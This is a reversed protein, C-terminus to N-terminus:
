GVPPDDAEALLAVVEDHGLQHFDLYHSGVAFGGDVRRPCVVEDALEGLARVGSSSGIPVAVVIRGAGRDRLAQVGAIASSGTAIGDDVVVVDRGTVPLPPRDDGRYTRAYEALRDTEREITAAIRDRDLHLVDIRDEDLWCVGGESLAGIGYEPHGPAGIKRVLLVDLPAGLADAVEVAVPVGGRPMALVLPDHLRLRALAAALVRGAERRDAYPRARV